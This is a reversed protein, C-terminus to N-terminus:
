ENNLRRMRSTYKKIPKIINSLSYPFYYFICLIGKAQHSLFHFNNNLYRPNQTVDKKHILSFSVSINAEYEYIPSEKFNFAFIGSSNQNTILNAIQFLEDKCKWEVSFKDIIWPIKFTKFTTHLLSMFFDLECPFLPGLSIYFCIFELAVFPFSVCLKYFRFFALFSLKVSM